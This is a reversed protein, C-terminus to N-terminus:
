SGRLSIRDCHNMLRKAKIYYLNFTTDRRKDSFYALFEAAKLHLSKEDDKIVDPLHQRHECM